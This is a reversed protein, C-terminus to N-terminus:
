HQHCPHAKACGPRCCLHWGRGCRAGSAAGACGDSLNFGFCVPEGAHAGTDLSPVGPLLATPMRVGRQRDAGSAKANKKGAGKGGRDGKGKGGPAPRNDGPGKRKLAAQLSAVQNSLNTIRADTNTAQKGGEPRASAASGSAAAAPLPSLRVEFATSLMIAELATDAPLKDAATPARLGRPCRRSLEEWVWADITALRAISPASYAADGPSETLARMYRLRLTDHVDFSLVGAMEAAIGRRQLALSVAWHTSVDATPLDRVQTETVVGQANPAWRKRGPGQKMEAARTPVEGWPIYGLCADELMAGFKDVVANAPELDGELRLAPGLRAALAERRAEREAQPLKRPLDGDTRTTRSKLDSLAIAHAEFLLRRIASAKPPVPEGPALGLLPRLVDSRFDEKDYAGNPGIEVAFAFAGFTNWGAKEFEPLVPALGLEGVRQAFMVKSDVAM